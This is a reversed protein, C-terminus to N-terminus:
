DLAIRSKSKGYKHTSSMGVKLGHPEEEGRWHHYKSLIIEAILQEDSFSLMMGSPDLKRILLYGEFNDVRVIEEIIKEFTMTSQLYTPYNDCQQWYRLNM